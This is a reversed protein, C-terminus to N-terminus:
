EYGSPSEYDATFTQDTRGLPDTLHVRVTYRGPKEWAHDVEWGRRPPTGDGFDWRCRWAGAEEPTGATLRAADRAGGAHPSEPMVRIEVSPVPHIRVPIEHTRTMCAPGDPATLELRLTYEGPTEYRHRVAGEDTTEAEAGDGTEWHSSLPLDPPSDLRPHVTVEDGAFADVRSPPVLKPIALATVTMAPSIEGSHFAQVQYRGPSDFTIAAPNGTSTTIRLEYNTIRLEVPETGPVSFSVPEGVCVRDPGRITPPTIERVVVRVTETDTDCASGSTDQVTLSVPYEGPASFVHTPAAASDTTGDGFDWQYDGIVGDPDSSTLGSFRVRTGVGAEFRAASKRRSSAPGVLRPDGPRHVEIAAAPRANVRVVDTFVTSNCREESDSTITLSVPYAGPEPFTHEVTEGSSETGDGFDWQYETIRGGEPPMSAGADFAVPIGDCAALTTEFTARPAGLVTIEAEDESAAECPSDGSVTIVLRATYTGAEAYLHTPTPGVGSTGDGFDWEYTKIRRGGGDSEGGDFSVPSYACVTRDPGAEAIPAAIVHLLTEAYGTDCPLGSDDTVTLRVRYDGGSRYTRVPNIGEVLEGDGLDWQYRLRGNELDKSGAADFLVLQGACHTQGDVAIAAVPPANITAVLQEQIVSNALGQGDDATLTVPYLGPSPFVHTLTTGPQPASGKADGFDWTIRIPDGDPDSPSGADFTVAQRCTRIDDPSIPNPPHNVAVIRTFTDSGNRIESDDTVTLTVAYRGPDSYAHEVVRGTVPGKGPDPDGLDWRFGTIEGDPDTSASGDLRLTEGPAVRGIPAIWATPAANVTVEAYDTGEAGDDDIVTLRVPYVGPDSFAHATRPGEATGDPGLVWRYAQIEGDPDGSRRGDFDISEGPAVRRDGGADATPPHNVRVTITDSQQGTETESADTVTLRVTYTGPIAYVHSVTMGDAEAGDGFDWHYNIIPDDPDTSGSADFDVRSTNVVRDSGPDPVPPHNVRVPYEASASRNTVNTDDTLTLRVTYAGPATYTHQVPTGTLATGDGMEWTYATITGDPDAADAADFAVEKGAAVIAPYDAAPVPSANVTITATTEATSNALGADDTVRVRVTYTGPTEYAHDMRPGTATTGDGLDWDTSIIRGDSDFSGSANLPVPIGPAVTSPATLRPIPPANVAIWHDAEAESCPSDGDDTVLLRVRYRGPRNFTHTVTPRNVGAMAPDGLDWRYRIIRGDPDSSGRGDLTVTEGPVTRAPAKIVATPPADMRVTERLKRGDAVFGSRDRVTLTVPHEGPEGFDHVIRGGTRRTGDPLDWAFTLPDGDPDTSGTADLVASNCDSLPLVALDPEPLHNAPAVFVPLRVPVPQGNGDTVAVQIYNPPGSNRLVIAGPGGRLEPTIAVEATRSRADPSPPIAVPDAFPAEFRITAATEAADADFNEVMLRDADPPITLRLQTALRPDPPLVVSVMPSVLQLGPVPRNSKPDASVFVGYQNIGRGSIGDVVLMFTRRDDEAEGDAPDITAVTRWQGDYDPDAGLQLRALPDATPLGAMAPDIGGNGFLLFRTESQPDPRDHRGGLDADYIRLHLPGQTAEPVDILYIARHHRDGEAIPTEKGTVVMLSDGTPLAFAAPAALLLILPVIWPRITQTTQM